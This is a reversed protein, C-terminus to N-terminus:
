RARTKNKYYSSILSVEEASPIERGAAISAARMRNLGAKILEPATLIESPTAAVEPGPRSEVFDKARPSDTGLLDAYQYAGVGAAAAAAAAASKLPFTSRRRSSVILDGGGGLGVPVGPGGRRTSVLATSPDPGGFIDDARGAGQNAYQGPGPTPITSLPGAPHVILDQTDNTRGPPPGVPVGPGGGGGVPIMGRDGSRILQGRLPVSLGSPAPPPPSVPVGPGSGGLAVMATGPDPVYPPEPPANIDDVRGVGKNAYAGESFMKEASNSRLQKYAAMVEEPTATAPNLKSVQLTRELWPTPIGTPGQLRALHSVSDDVLSKIIRGAKDRKGM